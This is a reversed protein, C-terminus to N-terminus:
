AELSASPKGITSDTALAFTAEHALCRIKEDLDSRLLQRRFRKSAQHVGEGFLEARGDILRAQPVTRNPGAGARPPEGNDDVVQGQTLRIALARLLAGGNGDSEVFLAAEGSGARRKCLFAADIRRLEAPRLRVLALPQRTVDDFGALGRCRQNGVEQDLDQLFQRNRPPHAPAGAVRLEDSRHVPQDQEVSCVNDVGAHHAGQM